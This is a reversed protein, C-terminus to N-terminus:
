DTLNAIAITRWASREAEPRALADAIAARLEDAHFPRQLYADAGSQLARRGTAPGSGLVVVRTAAAAAETRQRLALVADLNEAGLDLVVADARSALVADVPSSGPDLRVADFGGTEVVRAVVERAADDSNAVIVTAAM